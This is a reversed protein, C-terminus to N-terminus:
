RKEVTSLPVYFLTERCDQCLITMGEPITEGKFFEEIRSTKGCRPCTKIQPRLLREELHQLEKQHEVLISMVVSEFLDPNQIKSGATAHHKAHEFLSVFAEKDMNELTDRFEQWELGYAEVIQELGPITKMVDIVEARLHFTM